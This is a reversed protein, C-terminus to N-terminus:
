TRSRHCCNPLTWSYSCSGGLDSTTVLTVADNGLTAGFRVKSDVQLTKWGDRNSAAPKVLVKKVTVTGIKNGAATADVGPFLRLAVSIQQPEMEIDLTEDPKAPSFAERLIGEFEVRKGQFSSSESPDIGKELRKSIEAVYIKWNTQWPEIRKNEQARAPMVPPPQVLLVLGTLLCLALIRGGIFYEM